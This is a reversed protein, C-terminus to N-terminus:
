TIFSRYLAFQEQKHKENQEYVLERQADTLIQEVEREIFGDVYQGHLIAKTFNVWALELWQNNM